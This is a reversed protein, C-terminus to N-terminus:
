NDSEKKLWGPKKYAPDPYTYFGIGSKVGLRGQVVMEELFQPPRDREEGSNLFYQQEIDRIVDLGIQDMLGFPGWSLGYSLMWARDLDEFDSYGDGVLHLMERKIARWVRNFSFGMIEKRTMIPVMHIARVFAEGMAIADPDTAAHGMLEVLLDGNLPDTFNINFVREPRRTTDAIRSSPISSSNTALFATSPALRDIENFIKRKLELNEPVTEIVLQASATCEELGTCLHLYGLATAVDSESLREILWARISCGAQELKQPFIDYLYSDVGHLISQYAIRAGMTGAGVIAISTVNVLNM